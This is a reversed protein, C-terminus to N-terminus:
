RDRQEAQAFLLEGCANFVVLSWARTTRDHTRRTDSSRRGIDLNASM